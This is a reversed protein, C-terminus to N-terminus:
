DLAAVDHVKVVIKKVQTDEDVHVLPRHIDSTLFIAFDGPTLYVSADIKLDEDYFYLDRDAHTETAIEGQAYHVDICERGSLLYQIDIYEHHSEWRRTDRSERRAEDVNMYDSDELPYRGAKISTADIDRLHQLYKYLRDSIKGQLAEIHHINGTIM